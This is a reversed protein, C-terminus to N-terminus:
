SDVSLIVSAVQPRLTFSPACHMIGCLIFHLSCGSLWGVRTGRRIIVPANILGEVRLADLILYSIKLAKAAFQVVLFGLVRQGM